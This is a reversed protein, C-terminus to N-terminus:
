CSTEQQDTFFICFLFYLFYLADNLCMYAHIILHYKHMFHYVLMRDEVCFSARECRVLHVSHQYTHMCWQEAHVKYAYLM